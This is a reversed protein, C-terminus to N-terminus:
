DLKEQPNASYRTNPEYGPCDEDRIEGGSYWTRRCKRPSYLWKENHCYVAHGECLNGFRCPQNFGGGEGGDLLEVINVFPEGIHDPDFEILEEYKARVAAPPGNDDYEYHEVPLSWVPKGSFVDPFLGDKRRRFIRWENKGLGDSVYSYTYDKRKDSMQAEV